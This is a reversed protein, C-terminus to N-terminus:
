TLKAMTRLQEVVDDVAYTPSALVKARQSEALRPLVRAMSAQALVVVDSDQVATELAAAVLDDHQIQDGAVLAQYAGEILVSELSGSYGSSRATERILESTPGLTTSLTALIIISSGVSVAARAMGADVRVIPQRIEPQVRSGLEGISSCANLIVDVNRESMITAYSRWRPEVASVDGGNDRLEPLISDDLFNIIRAGPIRNGILKGFLEVTAPSTHIVGINPSTKM